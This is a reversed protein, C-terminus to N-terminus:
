YSLSFYQQLPVSKKLALREGLAGTPCVSICTGCTLCQTAQLPTDFAPKVITEFGREVLGLAGVGVVESCTRVCLGCLICKDSDRMIHTHGDDIKRNHKVGPIRGPNVAYQNSYDILKCEFYDHCGCELCREAEKLADKEDFIKEIDKIGIGTDTIKIVKNKDEMGVEITIIGKETISDVANSLINNLIQSVAHKNYYLFGQERLM